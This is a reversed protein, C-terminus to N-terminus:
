FIGNVLNDCTLHKIQKISIIKINGMELDSDESLTLVTVTVWVIRLEGELARKDVDSESVVVRESVIM